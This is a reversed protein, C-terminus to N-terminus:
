RIPLFISFTSGAGVKTEVEIRGKHKDVIKKVIDLGLGAGEGPPRTTFFPEFIRGRIEDPIGSGSDTVSVVAENGIQKLGITLKGKYGMAQLANHILHTWVEKLENPLCRLLPVNEYQLIVETGQKLQNSYVSLVFEIGEKLNADSMEGISDAQAFSRLTTVIKSIRDVATHINRTSDIISGISNATDMTFDAERHQLLPLYNAIALNAGLKVLIKAKKDADEVGLDELERATERRLTREERTSLQAKPATAQSVLQTFLGRPQTELIEFLKPINILAEELAASINEGSSKVAGIPTNIEHAVNAVLQGLSAMKESQILQAQTARLDTLTTELQATRAQVLLDLHNHIRFNEIAIAMQSTLLNLVRMRDVTFADSALNNELYLIGALKGKHTLPLCLVSKPKHAVIYPDRNFREDKTADPLIVSAGSRSVYNIISRPIPLSAVVPGIDDLPISPLDNVDSSESTVQAEIMLNGENALILFGSDAGANAIAINMIKRKLETLNIEGAFVQSAKIVADLDMSINARTTTYTAGPHSSIVTDTSPDILRKRSLINAYISDLDALKRRAGWLDYCAYAHRLHIAAFETKGRELWFRGALENALAEDHVFGSTTALDIAKDYNAIAEAIRGEVRYREAEVLKWKHLFNDTCFGAWTGLLKQNSAVKMNITPRPIQDDLALLILSHYYCLEAETSYSAIYKKLAVAKEISVNAAEYRGHLYLAQAKLAHYLALSSNGNHQSCIGLYEDENTGELDFSDASATDGCLNAIVSRAGHISDTALHNKVKRTFVLSEEATARQQSLPAGLFFRNITKGYLLLYSVFQFEGSEMGAQIGPDLYLEAERAHRVWHNVFSIMIVCARCKLGNDHYRETLKIALKAFEYGERPEGFDSCLIGGFSAYGKLSEPTQGYTMSLITMKALFWGYLDRMGAFYAATHAPMLVKMATVFCPDKMPPLNILSAISRDRLVDKIQVVESELASRLGDAPVEIGLLALAERAVAVAEENRGLMTYETILLACIDAQELASRAHQRVLAIDSMSAAFDGNLYHTDARARFLDHAIEYHHLWYDETLCAATVELYGLAAHYANAQKAQKGALLNIKILGTIEGTDVIHERGVNLHDAVEFLRENLEQETLKGLLLRGIGLHILKRQADEILSYAAQQVRDHVFRFRQFTEGKSQDEILENQLAPMLDALVRDTDCQQIIALTDLGFSNGICAALRLAERTQTPLKNLLSLMLDVVNDALGVTSIKDMDWHWGLQGSGDQADHRFEILGEKYFEKLLQNVFFPNGQTKRFALDALAAVQRKSSFLTDAIMQATDERTLPTLHIEELPANNDRLVSISIMLPHTPGVENDRYAGLLVLHKMQASSMLSELLKLTALDAWQLDDLFVVLPREATCFVQIFQQFLHNFRNQSEAAPLNPVASQPGILLEVDSIVNTIVQGSSGLADRLQRRIDALTEETSSLTQRVLDRFAAVLASYPTLKQFQDFKGAIFTSGVRTLPKYIERVLSTKGIGSHGSILVMQRQIHGAAFVRMLQDILLERGYLHQSVQFRHPVDHRALPFNEIHGSLTLQRRCEELDTKIAWASQYRDEANKALLKAVLNALAEPISPDVRNLPQAHKAIHCYVMDASDSASFPPNGTLLEYFSAGLSYFDARYDLSRNMRGTQEPAIYPLTGEIQHPNTLAPTLRPLRTAIGFDIFQLQGSVPNYIINSPNVDKHIINALHIEALAGSCKIAIDLFETLALHGKTLLTKLSEAGIDELTLCCGSSSREIDLVRVVGELDLQRLLEFEHRYRSLTEATLMDERLVKLIVPQGDQERISRYVICSQNESLLEKFVPKM